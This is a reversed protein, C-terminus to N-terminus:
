MSILHQGTQITALLLSLTETNCTLMLRIRTLLSHIFEESIAIESRGNEDVKMTSSHIELTTRISLPQLNILRLFSCHNSRQCYQHPQWEGQHQKATTYTIMDLNEENSCIIPTGCAQTSSEHVASSVRANLVTYSRACEM